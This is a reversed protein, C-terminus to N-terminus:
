VLEKTPDLYDIIVDAYTKISATFICVEYYKNVEKLCEVADNRINFGTM